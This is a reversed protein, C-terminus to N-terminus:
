LLGQLPARALKENAISTAKGSRLHAAGALRCRSTNNVMGAAAMLLDTESDSEEDSSSMLVDDYLVKTAARCSSSGM